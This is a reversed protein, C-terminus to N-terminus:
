GEPPNPLHNLGRKRREEKSMTLLAFASPQNAWEAYRKVIDAAWPEVAEEAGGSRYFEEIREVIRGLKAPSFQPGLEERLITSLTM